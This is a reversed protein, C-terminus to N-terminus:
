FYDVEDYPYSDDDPYRIFSFSSLKETDSLLDELTVPRTISYLEELEEILLREEKKREKVVELDIEEKDHKGNAIAEKNARRRVRRALRKGYRKGNPDDRERYGLRVGGFGDPKAADAVYSQGLHGRELSSLYKILSLL